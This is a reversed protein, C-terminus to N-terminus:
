SDFTSLFEDSVQGMEDFFIINVTRLFDMLKPIKMLDLIALEARRHPTLNDEPPLKFLHHAHIGGLHLARKCMMATTIVKLGKSIAYLQCYQMCWTKGGGPFGRIGVNKTYTGSSLLDRYQDIADICTTIALKQEQFSDEVQM